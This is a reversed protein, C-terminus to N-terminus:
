LHECHKHDAKWLSDLMADARKVTEMFRDIKEASKGGAPFEVGSSVDVAMPRVMNIAQEVNGQNLGGALVLRDTDRFGELWQWNFAKGTGGRRISSSTDFIYAYVQWQRIYAPDVPGDLSFSKIVPIGIEAAYEPSEEGHLQVMDLSCSRMIYKLSDLKENVFVGIKIIQQGIVRNIRAADEPMIKRPSDAFVEGMAWGGYNIVMRAEEPSKIGCIKVRTM